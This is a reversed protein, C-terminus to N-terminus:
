TYPIDIDDFLSTLSDTKLVDGQYIDVKDYWARNKLREPNRVLVRVKYGLELLKPVLRGGVYGTSGTVLVKKVNMINM